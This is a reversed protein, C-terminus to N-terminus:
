KKIAVQLHETVQKDLLEVAEKVADHSSDDKIAQVLPQWLKEPLGSRKGADALGTQLSINLSDDKKGSQYLRVALDAKMALEFLGAMENGFKKALDRAIPKAGVDSIYKLAQVEAATANSKREPFAPVSTDLGQTALQKCADLEKQYVDPSAGKYYVWAVKSLKVGLKWTYLREKPQQDEASVPSALIAALSLMSCLSVFRM